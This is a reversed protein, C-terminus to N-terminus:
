LDRDEGHMVNYHLVKEITWYRPKKPFLADDGMVAIRGGSAGPSQDASWHLSRKRLRSDSIRHRESFVVARHRVGPESWLGQRHGHGCYYRNRHQGGSHFVAPAVMGAPRCDALPHLRQLHSGSDSMGAARGECLGEM